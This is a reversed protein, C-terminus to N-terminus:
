GRPFNPLDRRVFGYDVYWDVARRLTEELPRYELGLARTARSGDYANGHLLVRVMEVCLTGDRRLLQALGGAGFLAPVALWRPLWRVEQRLGSIQDVLRVADSLKTWPPALVYREAPEGHQAALLHGQVCDAVDLVSVRTDVAVRLKGELYRILFEATGTSRGPGQVSTPNVTVLDVGARAAAARAAVEGERKSREYASLYWGRHQTDEDGVEGEPEGLTSASSTLVVRRAGARAAAEVVNVAGSVNVQFMPMADRICFRNVGAVHFVLDCGEVAADLSAPELVDGLVAEAGHAAVVQAGTRDRALAKVPGYGPELALRGLLAGGIFGTGGTVLTGAM